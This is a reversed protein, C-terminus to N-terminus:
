PQILDPWPDFKLDPELQPVCHSKLVTTSNQESETVTNAM